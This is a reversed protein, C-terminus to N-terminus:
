SPRSAKYGDSDCSMKALKDAQKCKSPSTSDYIWGRETECLCFKDSCPPVEGGKNACCDHQKCKVGDSRDCSNASRGCEQGFKVIPTTPTQQTSPAPTTLWGDIPTTPTQQTSPAPTTLWGDECVFAGAHNCVGISSDFKTGPACNHRVWYYTVTADDHTALTACQCFSNCNTGPMLRLRIVDHEYKSCIAGERCGASEDIPTTPTHQTSLAPTTLWRDECVFAGVHNCVGISSDFKTGPACNHRVWYYTVTADDHTALTACQCFSNCNTGPMLRLRIVDYEYKSCKAGERCAASRDIPTTPTQQTSPAPTTLWGDKCVFAGAHNCVGISSDFKTGPACNHRVWYYTVTADDHTALTACQCFSNCNTGPMLRLRIVDHEYKSCIAGERCGDSKDIPTTPTQQTSPAPTTLWGDECMFADVHNCVGISSDFKTGPACNHRVWYYTVTADDHTALTACQLFSNCNTGPMLRLRIVDHEYKTCIDGERCGASKDLWCLAFVILYTRHSTM